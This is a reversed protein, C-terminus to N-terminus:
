LGLRQKFEQPLQPDIRICGLFSPQPAAGAVPSPPSAPERALPAAGGESPAKSSFDAGGDLVINDTWSDGRRMPLPAPRSTLYSDLEHVNGPYMADVVWRTRLIVAPDTM